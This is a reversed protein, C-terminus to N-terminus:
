AIWFHVTVPKGQKHFIGRRKFSYEPVLSLIFDIIQEADNEDHYTTIVIRPRNRIITQAAGRLMTLEFGEIDAKLFTIPKDGIIKDITEISVENSGEVDSSISGSLADVTLAFLGEAAGIDLLVDSPMVKFVSQYNHWDTIDYTESVVQYIGMEGYKIPWYFPIEMDVLRVEFFEEHQSISTIYRKGVNKLTPKFTFSILQKLSVDNKRILWYFLIIIRRM